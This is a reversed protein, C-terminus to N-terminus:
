DLIIVTAISKAPMEYLLEENAINITSKEANMNLSTIYLTAFDPVDSNIQVAIGEVVEDTPNIVVLVTRDVGRYATVDLGKDISMSEKIRHYGPRVFRSYHSFAFGRKLVTGRSTGQTGDGIFSYYRQIYWWVYANWNSEMATHVTSLMDLSEDWIIEDSLSSWSSTADKNMLYETMWISKGKQEALSYTGEGNGYIHGGIIDVNVAADPDNLIDDSYSRKFNFSEPAIVMNDIDGANNKVFNYMETRSWQTWEGIDPENQVSIAYLPAANDSMYTNFANLHDVYEDYKEPLVRPENVNPDLLEEPTYWPSAFVKVGKSVAYQATPIELNWRDPDPNLHVRLISFGLQGEDEGFVLQREVENLDTRWVPHNIGGFGEIDQYETSTDVIIKTTSSSTSSGGIVVPPGVGDDSSCSIIFIANLLLIYNRITKKM